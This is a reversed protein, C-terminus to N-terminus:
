KVISRSTRSGETNGPVPVGSAPPTVNSSSRLAMCVTHLRQLMTAASILSSAGVRSVEPMEVATAHLTNLSNRRLMLCHYYSFYVFPFCYLLMYSYGLRM